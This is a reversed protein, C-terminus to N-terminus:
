EKTAAAIAAVSIKVHPIVELAHICAEMTSGTTIVDDILLFHKGTYAEANHVAFVTEVNKWREERSKKTQTETFTTRYLIDTMMPRNMGKSLGIGFMESQNYGRKRLKKAHLPVPVIIDVTSFLPSNILTVGYIEGLYIGIEKKGKYKLQHVLHQVKNGKRFYYLAAAANLPAKGWFVKAVPNDNHLHFNTQPLQDLCSTCLIRENRGLPENCACCCNPFFLSLFDQFLSM